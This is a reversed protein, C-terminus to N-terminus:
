LRQRFCKEKESSNLSINDYVYVPKRTFYGNNKDSKLSVQIKQHGRHNEDNGRSFRQFPLIYHSLLRKWTIKTGQILYQCCQVHQPFLILWMINHQNAITSHPLQWQKVILHLKPCTQQLESNGACAYLIIKSSYFFLLFLSFFAVFRGPCDWLRSKKRWFLVCPIDTWLNCKLFVAPAYNPPPPHLRGPYWLGLPPL